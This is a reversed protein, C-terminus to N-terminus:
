KWSFFSVGVSAVQSVLLAQVAEDRELQATRMDRLMEEYQQNQYELNASLRSRGEEAAMVSGDSHQRLRQVNM